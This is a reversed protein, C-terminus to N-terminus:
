RGVAKIICIVVFLESDISSLECLYIISTLAVVEHSSRMHLVICHYCVTNLVCLLLDIGYRVVM